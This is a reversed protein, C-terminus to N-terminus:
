EEAGSLRPLDAARDAFASRIARIVEGPHEVGAVASTVAVRQAGATILEPIRELCIGGIAFWPKAVITSKAVSNVFALGPFEEFSKTQSPFVPGVGLYDAGAETAQIAQELSHTSLGVLQGPKLVRRAEAVSFEDQGVHVGDAECIAAIDPRDNVIFLARANRCAAGMWEARRLLERDNLSKERLQLVGVGADLSQEVVQQWPLRCMSETILLYVRAQQLRIAKDDHPLLGPTSIGALSKEMTYASYRLSKMAASFPASVLKGFEELSRLSEEVRRANAIVVDALAGRQQEGDTMQTTGVDGDTDRFQLRDAMGIGASAFLQKEAAVLDHRMSKLKLSIDHNDVLFRAFDELVRLGERARNLNADLVRWVSLPAVDNGGVLRMASDVTTQESSEDQLTVARATRDTNTIQLGDGTALASGSAPDNSLSSPESFTLKFEVTIPVQPVTQEPYLEERIRALTAGVAEFRQRIEGNTEVIALLLNGSSIGSDNLGRRALETARDLVRTFELPDNLADLIQSVAGAKSCVSAERPTTQPDLSEIDLGDDEDDSQAALQAVEAGLLGSSLWDRTIGLRQLCASALSEDQLLALVLFAAWSDTRALVGAQRRCRAVTRAAGPTMALNNRSGSM